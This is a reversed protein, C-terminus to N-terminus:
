LQLNDTGQNIQLAHSYAESAVNQDPLAPREARQPWLSQSEALSALSRGLHGPGFWGGPSRKKKAGSRAHRRPAPVSHPLEPAARQPSWRAAFNTFNTCKWEAIEDFKGWPTESLPRQRTRLCKDHGLKGLHSTQGRQRLTPFDRRCLCREATRARAASVNPL